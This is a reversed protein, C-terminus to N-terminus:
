LGAQRVGYTAQSQTYGEFTLQEILGSRSFPSIDLYNKAAKAAQESWDADVNAAAFEAESSSYDEFTLQEILGSRSFPATNLYNQASRLANQQGASAAAAKEEAARSRFLM